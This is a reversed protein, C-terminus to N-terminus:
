MISVEYTRFDGKERTQQIFNNYINSKHFFLNM